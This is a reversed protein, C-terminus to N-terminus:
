NKEVSNAIILFCLIKEGFSNLLRGTSGITLSAFTFASAGYTACDGSTDVAGNIWSNITLTGGQVYLATNRYQTINTCNITVTALNPPTITLNQTSTLSQWSGGVFIQASIAVEEFGITPSVARSIQQTYVASGTAISGTPDTGVLTTNGNEIFRVQSDALSLVPINIGNSDKLNLRINVNGAGNLTSSSLSITSQATSPTGYFTINQVGNTVPVSAGTTVTLTGTSGSASSPISITYTGNDNDVVSVTPTSFSTAVNVSSSNGGVQISQGSTNYLQLVATLTSSGVGAAGTTVPMTLLGGNTASLTPSMGWQVKRTGVSTPTGSNITSHTINVNISDICYPATTCGTVSSPSTLTVTYTGPSVYTLTGSNSLTGRVSGAVATVSATLTPAPSLTLLNNSADRIYVTVTQATSITSVMRNPISVSSTSFSITGAVLSITTSKGIIATGNVTSATIIASGTGISGPAVYSQRYTGTASHYAMSSSLTGTNATVVVSYGGNTNQNGYQDYLTVVITTGSSGDATLSSNLATITTRTLDPPSNAGITLSATGSTISQGNITAAFTMTGSITGLSYTRTYIGATTTIFGSGNWSGLSGTSPTVAITASSNPITNGYQDRLVVTAVVTDSGSAVASSSSLTVTSQSLSITSAPNVTATSTLDAYISSQAPLIARVTYNGPVTGFSYTASAYGDSDTTADISTLGNTFTGCNASQCQFRTVFGVEPQGNPKTVRVTYPSLTANLFGTQGDGGTATVTYGTLDQTILSFAVTGQLSSATVVVPGSASGGTFNVQATGDSGTNVAVSNVGSVLGSGSTVTFTIASGQIPIGLSDLAVIKLPSSAVQGFGVQQSSGSVVVLSAGGASTTSGTSLILSPVGSLISSSNIQGSFLVVGPSTGVKFVNSYTGTSSYVFTSSTNWSGYGAVPSIFTEVTHGPNPILNGYIDRVQVSVTVLQSGNAQSSSQSLTVTSLSYDIASSSSVTGTNTFTTYVTPSNTLAARVTNVGSSTGLVYTSSAFGLSNTSIIITVSGGITGNGSQVSFTVPIGSAANGDPDLVQVRLPTGLDSGVSGSLGSGSILQISYNGLAVVSLNFTATGAPSIATVVPSGASAGATYDVSALGSSNTLVSTASISGSGSLGFTVVSNAIPLGSGDRAMVVLSSSAQTNITVTQLNGGVIILSSTTTGSGSGSGSTSSPEGIQSDGSIKKGDESSICGSLSFILFFFLILM